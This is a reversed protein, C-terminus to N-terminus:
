IVIVRDTLVGVLISKVFYYIRTSIISGATKGGSLFVSISLYKYLFHQM